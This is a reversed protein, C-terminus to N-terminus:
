PRERGLFSPTLSRRRAEALDQFRRHAAALASPEVTDHGSITLRLEHKALLGGVSVKVGPRLEYAVLMETWREEQKVYVEAVRVPQEKPAAAQWKQLRDMWDTDLRDRKTGFTIDRMANATNKVEVGLSTSVATRGWALRRSSASGSSLWETTTMTHTNM